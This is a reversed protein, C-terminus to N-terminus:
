NNNLITLCAEFQNYAALAANNENTVNLVKHATLWTLPAILNEPFNDDVYTKVVAKADEIVPVEGHPASFYNLCNNDIILVPKYQGGRTFISAQMAAQNSNSSYVKTVSRKWGKLKFKMLRIYGDPLTISGYGESNYENKNKSFDVFSNILHLPAITLLQNAAEDLFTDIPYDTNINTISQENVEDICCLVRLKIDRRTM